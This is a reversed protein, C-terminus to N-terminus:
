GALCRRFLAGALVNHRTLSPPATGREEENPVLRRCYPREGPIIAGSFEQLMFRMFFMSIGARALPFM